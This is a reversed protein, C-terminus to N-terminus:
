TSEPTLHRVYTRGLATWLVCPLRGVCGEGGGVCRQEKPSCLGENRLAWSVPTPGLLAASWVLNCLLNPSARQREHTPNARLDDACSVFHM